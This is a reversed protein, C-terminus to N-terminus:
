HLALFMEVGIKDTRCYKTKPTKTKSWANCLIPPRLEYPLSIKHSFPKEIYGFEFRNALLNKGKCDFLYAASISALLIIKSKIHMM